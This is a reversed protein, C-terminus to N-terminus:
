HREIGGLDRARRRQEQAHHLPELVRSGSIRHSFQELARQEAPYIRRGLLSPVGMAELM